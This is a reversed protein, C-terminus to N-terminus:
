SPTRSFLKDAPPGLLPLADKELEEVIPPRERGLRAVDSDRVESIGAHNGTWSLISDSLTNIQSRWTEDEEDTGAPRVIFIDVDSTTDGDGRAASGFVSAHTPKTEWNGLEQTIREILASRLRILAIAADAALHDRNLTYLM